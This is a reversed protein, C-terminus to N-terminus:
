LGRFFHGPEIMVDQRAPANSIQRFVQGITLIELLLLGLLLLIMRVKGAATRMVDMATRIM